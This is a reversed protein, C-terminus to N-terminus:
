PDSPGLIVVLLCGRTRKTENQEHPPRLHCLRAVLHCSARYATAAEQCGVGVAFLHDVREFRREHLAQQGLVFEVQPDALRESRPSIRFQPRDGSVDRAPQESGLQRRLPGLYACAAPFVAPFVATLDPTHVSVAIMRAALVDAAATDPGPAASIM